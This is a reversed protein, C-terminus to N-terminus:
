RDLNDSEILKAQSTEKADTFKEDLTKRIRIAKARGVGQVKALEPVSARMMGARARPLSLLVGRVNMPM